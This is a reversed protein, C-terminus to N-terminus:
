EQNLSNSEPQLQYAKNIPVISICKWGKVKVKKGKVSFLDNNKKM